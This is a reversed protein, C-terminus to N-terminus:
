ASVAERKRAEDREREERARANLVSTLEEFGEGIKALALAIRERGLELEDVSEPEGLLWERSRGYRGSMRELLDLSVKASGNEIKTVTIRHVGLDKAAQEQTLGCASRAQGARAGDITYGPRAM